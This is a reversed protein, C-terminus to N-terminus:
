KNIVHKTLLKVLQQVQELYQPDSISEDDGHDDDDAADDADDFMYPQCNCGTGPM